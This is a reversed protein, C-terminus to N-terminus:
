PLIPLVPAVPAIPAVPAVPYVPADPAVPAVPVIPDVPAVPGTAPLLVCITNLSAPTALPLALKVNLLVVLTSATMPLM